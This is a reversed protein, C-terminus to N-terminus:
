LFAHNNSITRKKNKQRVSSNLLMREASAFFKGYYEDNALHPKSSLLSILPNPSAGLSLILDVMKEKKHFLAFTLVTNKGIAGDERGNTDSEIPFPKELLGKNKKLIFEVSDIANNKICSLLTDLNIEIDKNNKNNLRNLGNVFKFIDIKSNTLLYTTIDQSNNVKALFEKKSEKSLNIWLISIQDKELVKISEEFLIVMWADRHTLKKDTLEKPSVETLSWVKNVVGLLSKINVHNGLMLYYKIPNLLENTEQLTLSSSYWETLPLVRKIIDINGQICALDKVSLRKESKKVKKLIQEQQEKIKANSPTLYIGKRELYSIDIEGGFSGKDNYDLREPLNTYLALAATNKWMYTVYEESEIIRKKTYKFLEFAEKQPNMLLWEHFRFGNLASIPKNNNVNIYDRGAYVESWYGRLAWEALLNNQTEEHLSYFTAGLFLEIKIHRSNYKFQM